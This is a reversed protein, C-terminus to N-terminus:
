KFCHWEDSLTMAQKSLHTSSMNNGYNSHDFCSDFLDNVVYIALLTLTGVPLVCGAICCSTFQLVVVIRHLGPGCLPCVVTTLAPFGAVLFVSQESTSHASFPWYGCSYM